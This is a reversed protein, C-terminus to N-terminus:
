GKLSKSTPIKTSPNSVFAQRFRSSERESSNIFTEFVHHLGFNPDHVPQRQDDFASDQGIALENVGSGLVLADFEFDLGAFKKKIKEGDNELVM